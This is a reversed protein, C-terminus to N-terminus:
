KWYKQGSEEYQKKVPYERWAFYGVADTLHSLTLDYKKDIEGSGGEVLRVGEFDEVLHPCKSPDIMMRISGSSSLLLSNVSNVRDRERPNVNPVRFVTRDNGFYSWLKEKILQWDSGLIKASGGAGGTADGYVYIFGDHDGWDKILKDCVMITNSNRPIYVEGILGVGWENGHPTPLKMEQGIVAVGPAVNFDFMFLLPEGRNYTEYIRACHLKDEYTWYARGTFNIFSGEYEQKFTLDDLDKRAEDIEEPPLIDSSFWHFAQRIGTRDHLAAKYAHYYHNRGEPVGIMDCWGRRDSLAPRVHEPWTEKKMNGYEDLIGGDWPVGEIRQPKDMGLVHIEAGNICYIILQSESPEKSQLSAPVMQKLDYWFIRKAQDRTPAGAFYRPDPYASGGLNPPSFAMRVLRRKALETKGSRRGAPVVNFRGTTLWYRAQVPHYKLPYFRTGFFQPSKREGFFEVDEATPEEIIASNNYMTILDERVTTGV